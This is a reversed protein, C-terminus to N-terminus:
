IYKVIYVIGVACVILFLSNRVTNRYPEYADRFNTFNIEEGTYNIIGLNLKFAPININLFDDFSIYDNLKSLEESFFTVIYFKEEILSNIEDEHAQHELEQEESMIFLYNFLDKFLDIM